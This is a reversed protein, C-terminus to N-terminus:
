NNTWSSYRHDILKQYEGEQIIKAAIRLGRAFCDMAGIHAIFLDEVDTSERRVKCDFNFGGPAIGGQKLVIMMTMVCKKVDTPFQDTDWGLMADGTNSDISGLKNHISSMLLDHEYEHGALQTHNPEINLKFDKDLNYEKLFGM